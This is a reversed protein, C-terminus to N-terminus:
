IDIEEISTSPTETNIKKEALTSPTETNIKKEALTSPTETNIKLESLESKIESLMREEEFQKKSIDEVTVSSPPEQVAAFNGDNQNMMSMVSTMIPLLNAIPNRPPEPAPAVVSSKTEEIEPLEEEVPPPILENNEKKNGIMKNYKEMIGQQYMIHKQLKKSKDNLKNIRVNTFVLAFILIFIMFSFGYFMMENSFM